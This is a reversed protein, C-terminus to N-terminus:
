LEIHSRIGWIGIDGRDANFAMNWIYQYDLTLYMNPSVQVSYYMELVHEPAYRLKGDGIIFGNGGRALFNQQESSLDNVVGAIGLGLVTAIPQMGEVIAVRIHYHRGVCEAEPNILLVHARDDVEVHRM